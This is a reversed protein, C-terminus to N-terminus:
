FHLMKSFFAWPKRVIYTSLAALGKGENKVDVPLPCALNIKPTSPM